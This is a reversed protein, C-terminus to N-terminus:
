QGGQTSQNPEQQSTPSQIAPADEGTLAAQIARVISLLYSRHRQTDKLFTAIRLKDVLYDGSAERFFQRITRDGMGRFYATWANGFCIVTVSGRSPEYDCWFVEIHDHPPGAPYVIWGDCPLARSGTGQAGEPNPRPRKPLGANQKKM